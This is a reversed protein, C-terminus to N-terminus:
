DCRQLSMGPSRACYNVTRASDSATITQKVGRRATKAHLEPASTNRHSDATTPGTLAQGARWADDDSPRRVCTSPPTWRGTRLDNHGAVTLCGGM